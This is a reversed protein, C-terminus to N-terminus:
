VLAGAELLTWVRGEARPSARCMSPAGDAVASLLSLSAVGVRRLARLEGRLHLRRDPNCCGFFLLASGVPRGARAPM